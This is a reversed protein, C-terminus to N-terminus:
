LVVDTITVGKTGIGMDGLNRSMIFVTSTCKCIWLTKNSNFSKVVSNIKFSPVTLPQLHLPPCSSCRSLQHDVMYEMRVCTYTSMCLCQRVKEGRTRRGLLNRDPRCTHTMGEDEKVNNRSNVWIWTLRFYYWQIQFGISERNRGKTVTFYTLWFSFFCFM